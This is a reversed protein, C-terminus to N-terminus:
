SIHWMKPIICGFSKNNNLFHFMNTKIKIKSHLTIEYDDRKLCGFKTRM